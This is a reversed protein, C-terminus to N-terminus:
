TDTDGKREKKKQYLSPVKLIAKQPFPSWIDCLDKNNHNDKFPKTMILHNCSIGAPKKSM